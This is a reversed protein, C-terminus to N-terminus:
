NIEHERSSLTIHQHDVFISVGWHVGIVVISPLSPQYEGLYKGDGNLLGETCVARREM